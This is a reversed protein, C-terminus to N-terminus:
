IGRIDDWERKWLNHNFNNWWYRSVYVSWCLKDRFRHDM